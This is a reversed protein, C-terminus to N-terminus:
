LQDIVKIVIYVATFMSTTHEIVQDLLILANIPKEMLREQLLHYYIFFKLFTGLVSAMAVPAVVLLVRTTMSLHYIVSREDETMHPLFDYIESVNM